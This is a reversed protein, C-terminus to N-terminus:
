QALAGSSPQPNRGVARFIGLIAGCECEARNRPNRPTGLRGRKDFSHSRLLWLALPDPRQRAARGTPAPTSFTWCCGTSPTDPAALQVWHGADIREYRWGGVVFRDTGTMAQETVVLDGSSWVGMTQAQIPPLPAPPALLSEPPLIARYLGLRATLAGPAPLRHVM